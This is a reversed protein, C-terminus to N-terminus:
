GKKGGTNICMTSNSSLSKKCVYEISRAYTQLFYSMKSEQVRVDIIRTNDIFNVCQKNGM